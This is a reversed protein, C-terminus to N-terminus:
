IGVNAAPKVTWHSNGNVTFPAGAVTMAAVLLLTGSATFTIIGNLEVNFLVAAGFAPVSVYTSMAVFLAPYKSEANTGSSYEQSEMKVSVGSVAPGFFAFEQSAATGGQTCNILGSIRYTGPAVPISLITYATNFTSVSINSPVIAFLDGIPYNNGDAWGQAFLGSEGWTLIVHENLSRDAYLLSAGAFVSGDAYSSQMGIWAFDEYPSNLQPGLMQLNEYQAPSTGQVATAIRGPTQESSLGGSLAMTAVGGFDVIRIYSGNVGYFTFGAYYTNGASDTGAVPSISAALNGSGIGASTYFRLSGDGTYFFDILLGTANHIGLNGAVDFQSRSGTPNGFGAVSGVANGYPDTNGDTIWAIPPNGLEPSGSYVFLGDDPGFIIVVQAIVIGPNVFGQGVATGFPM